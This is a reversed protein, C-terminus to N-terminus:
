YDGHAVHLVRLGRGRLADVVRRRDDLWLWPVFGDAVMRDLLELKVIQDDRHDGAARMYMRSPVFELGSVEDLWKWTADEEDTSRGTCAVVTHGRNWLSNLLEVIDEYPKDEHLNATYAKWDVPTDLGHVWPVIHHLRHNNDAVTGDIDMVVVSTACPGCM